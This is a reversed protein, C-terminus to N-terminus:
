ILRVQGAATKCIFRRVREAKMGDFDFSASVGGICDDNSSTSIRAELTKTCVLGPRKGLAPTHGSPTPAIETRGPGARPDAM